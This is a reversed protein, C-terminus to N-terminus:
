KTRGWGGWREIVILSIDSDSALVDGVKFSKLKKLRELNKRLNALTKETELIAASIEKKTMPSSLLCKYGLLNNKVNPPSNNQM